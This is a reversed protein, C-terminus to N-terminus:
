QQGVKSVAGKGEDRYTTSPDEGKGYQEVVTQRRTAYARSEPRPGVLDRPDAVMAALNQQSACGFNHYSRNRQDGTANDPWLGCPQTVAKPATYSIRIPAVPVGDTPSYARIDLLEGGIGAKHLVAQIEPLARHASAENATGAPLMVTVPGEGYKRYRSAFALTEARDRENLGFAEPGIDLKLTHPGRTVLIPHRVRYDDPEDYHVARERGCGGLGAAVALLAVALWTTRARAAAPRSEPVTM